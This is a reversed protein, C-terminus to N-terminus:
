WQSKAKARGISMRTRYKSGDKKPEKGNGDNGNQNVDHGWFQLMHQEDDGLTHEM